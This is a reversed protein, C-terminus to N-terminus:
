LAYLYEDAFDGLQRKCAGTGCTISFKIQSYKNYRGVIFETLAGM